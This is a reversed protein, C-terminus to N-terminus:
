IYNNELSKKLKSKDLQALFFAQNNLQEAFLKNNHVLLNQLEIKIKYM